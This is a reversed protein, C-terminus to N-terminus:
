TPLQERIKLPCYLNVGIYHGQRVTIYQANYTVIYDLCYMGLIKKKNIVWDSEM